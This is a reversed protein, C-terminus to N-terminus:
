RMAPVNASNRGMRLLTGLREAISPNPSPEAAYRDIRHAVQRLGRAAPCRPSSLAFPQRMRVSQSVAADNLVMGALPLPAGLFKRCVEAIREHVQRGEAESRVENVILRTEASRNQRRLAKILAYADTYATPEPTTVVLAADAAVAFSLVNPSVGAGCDILLVDAAHEVSHMRDILREREWANLAALNALGSGGPILTFGGPAPVMVEHIEARGAVVHGLNLRPSLNCIVDVNATGLDADLVVVRRGMAALTVALSTTLTTKGVGGKGSCVAFSRARAPRPPAATKPISPSVPRAHRAMLDRLMTAQDTTTM